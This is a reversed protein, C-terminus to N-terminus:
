TSEVLSEWGAPPPALRWLQEPAGLKAGIGWDTELAKMQSQYRALARRKAPDGGETDIAVPTPWVGCRFLASIRWALLGPIHKYGSDEYCFWAPESFRDRVLM